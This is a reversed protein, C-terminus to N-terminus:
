VTEISAEQTVFVDEDMVSAMITADLSLSHNCYRMLFSLRSFHQFGCQALKLRYLGTECIASNSFNPPTLLHILGHVFLRVPPRVFILPSPPGTRDM